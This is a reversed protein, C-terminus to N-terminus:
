FIPQWLTPVPQGLNGVPVNGLFIALRRYVMERHAAGGPFLLLSGDFPWHLWWRCFDEVGLTVEPSSGELGRAKASGTSAIEDSTLALGVGARRDM